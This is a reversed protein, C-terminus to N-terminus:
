SEPLLTRDKKLKKEVDNVDFVSFFKKNGIKNEKLVVRVVDGDDFRGLLSYTGRGDSVKKINEVINANKIIQQAKPLLALRRLIDSQSRGIGDERTFIHNLGDM